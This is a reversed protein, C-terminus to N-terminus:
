RVLCSTPFIRETSWSEPLLYIGYFLLRTSGAETIHSGCEFLSYPTKLEQVIRAPMTAGTKQARDV